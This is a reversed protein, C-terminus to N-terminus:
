QQQMTEFYDKVVKQSERSVSEQDVDDTTDKVANAAVKSLEVRSSGKVTGAKVFTSALIRGDQNEQTPAAERKVTYPAQEKEGRGGMGQGPGGMGNGQNNKPEGQAWKGTNNPGKGQGQKNGGPQQGQQNGQNLNDAADQQAQQTADQAAAVQQADKQMADMQDLSQQMQQRANSMQQQANQQQGPQNAQQGKQAAQQQMAQAMQKAAQQMQQAQAQTNAQAQMQQMMQQMQQQQQQSMGAQQMQQQVQQQMKQMQQQANKDGQAAKQAMQQMQQIQQQVQPNKAMEQMKKALEQQKAPDNAMQQLQKALKDMQDAAKQKEQDSMGDFKKAVENLNEVAKSFNGKAIERQTDAVPGQEQPSPELSKMWKADNQADAFKHSKDIEEKIASNADQLAKMASRTTKEPDSSPQKLLSELDRKAIQINANNQLEKPYSNVTALAKEVTTKAAEARKREAMAQETHKEKGLLDFAPFWMYTSLLVVGAAITFWGQNPFTFPFRKHLSVNDATVEADKVAAVAFPDKSNRVILATSFKEKLGLRQDIMVAAEHASPKRLMAYVVAALVAGIGVAMTAVSARPVHLQFLRDILLAIWIAGAAVFLTIAVTTFFRAVALKGQVFAIHRDLRSM